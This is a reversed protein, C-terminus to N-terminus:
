LLVEQVEDDFACLAGELDGRDIELLTMPFAEKTKKDM